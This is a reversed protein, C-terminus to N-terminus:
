ISLNIKLRYVFYDIALVFRSMPLVLMLCHSMVVPFFPMARSDNEKWLISVPTILLCAVLSYIRFPLM